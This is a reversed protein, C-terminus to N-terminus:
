QNQYYRNIKKKVYLFRFLGILFLIPTIILLLIGISRIESLLELKLIAVGSSLLVISTRFYALLTRENALKTRVLALHDTTTLELCKM